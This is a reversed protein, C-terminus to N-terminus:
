IQFSLDCFDWKIAFKRNFSDFIDRSIKAYTVFNEEICFFAINNNSKLFLSTLTVKKFKLQHNLNVLFM